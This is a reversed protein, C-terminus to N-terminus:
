HHWSIGFYSDVEDDMCTQLQVWVLTPLYLYSVAVLSTRVCM